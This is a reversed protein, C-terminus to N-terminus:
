LIISQIELTRSYRGYLSLCLLMYKLFTFFFHYIKSTSLTGIVSQLVACLFCTSFCQMTDWLM